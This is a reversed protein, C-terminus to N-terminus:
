IIDLDKQNSITFTADDDIDEIDSSLLEDEFEDFESKPTDDGYSSIKNLIKSARPSMLTNRRGYGSTISNLTHEGASTPQNTTQPIITKRKRLWYMTVGIIIVIGIVLCVAGIVLPIKSSSEATNSRSVYCADFEETEGVLECDVELEAYVMALSSFLSMGTKKDHKGGLALTNEISTAVSMDAAQILPLISRSFVYAETADELTRSSHSLKLSASLTAQIRPILLSTMIDESIRDLTECSSNLLAGRGADLLEVVHANAEAQDNSTCTGFELCHKQALDYPAYWNDSNEMGSRKISGLLLGAAMDWSEFIDISESSNLKAKCSSVSQVMAENAAHEMILTQSFGLVVIRRQSGKLKEDVRLLAGQVLDHAYRNSDFYNTFLDFNPILERGFRTALEALSSRAHKGYVYIENAAEYAQMQM